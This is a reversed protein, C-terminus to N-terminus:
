NMATAAAGGLAGAIMFFLYAQGMATWSNLLYLSVGLCLFGLLAAHLAGMALAGPLLSHKLFIATVALGLHLVLWLSIAHWTLNGIAKPFGDLAAQMEAHLTQGAVFVHLIVGSTLLVAAVTAYINM